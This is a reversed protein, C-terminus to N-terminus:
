GLLEDLRNWLCKAIHHDNYLAQRFEPYEKRYMDIKGGHEINAIRDALKLIVANRNSATKPLTKEKNYSLNGDEIADHLYGAVIFDGSFDFRDLVAVVDDLHKVYPFIGDYRQDGHAVIAVQRAELYRKKRDYINM